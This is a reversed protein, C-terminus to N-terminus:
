LALITLLLLCREDGSITRRAPAPVFAARGPMGVRVEM